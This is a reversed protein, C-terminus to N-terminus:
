PLPIAEKLKPATFIALAAGAAARACGAGVVPLWVKWDTFDQRAAFDSLIFVVAGVLAAWGAEWFIKFRYM